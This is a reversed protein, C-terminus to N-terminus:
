PTITFPLFHQTTIAMYSDHVPTASEAHQFSEVLGSIICPQNYIDLDADPVNAQFPCSNQWCWLNNHGGTLVIGRGGEEPLVDFQTVRDLAEHVGGHRVILFVVNLDYLSLRRINSASHMWQLEGLVGHKGRMTASRHRLASELLSLTEMRKASCPMLPLPPWSRPGAWTRSVIKKEHSSSSKFSTKLAGSLQM